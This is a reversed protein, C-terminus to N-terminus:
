VQMTRPSNQHAVSNNTPVNILLSQNQKVREFIQASKKSDIRIIKMIDAAGVNTINKGPFSISAINQMNICAPLCHIAVTREVKQSPDIEALM